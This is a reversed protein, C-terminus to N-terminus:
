ASQVPHFPRGSMEANHIWPEYVQPDFHSHILQHSIIRLFPHSPLLAHSPSSSSFLSLLLLSHSWSILHSIFLFLNHPGQLIQSCIESCKYSELRREKSGSKRPQRFSSPFVPLSLPPILFFTSLSFFAKGKEWEIPLSMNSHELNLAQKLHQLLILPCTQNGTAYRVDQFGDYM